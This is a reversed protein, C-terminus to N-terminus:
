VQLLEFKSEFKLGLVRKHQKLGASDSSAVRQGADEDEVLLM